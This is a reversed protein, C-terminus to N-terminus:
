IRKSQNINDSNDENILTMSELKIEKKIKIQFFILHINYYYHYNMIRMAIM